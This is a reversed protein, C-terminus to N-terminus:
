DRRRVAVQYPGHYTSLYMPATSTSTSSFVRVEYVGTEPAQFNGMGPNESAWIYALPPQVEAGPRQITMALSGSIGMVGKAGWLTLRDGAQAQFTFVDVDGRHELSEGTVTQDIQIAAPVSEPAHQVASVRFRYPGEPDVSIGTHPEAHHGVRVRYTGTHPLVFRESTNEEMAGPWLVVHRLLPTDGEAPLLDLWSGVLGQINMVIETGAAASFEYVDLDQTPHISEGEVIQGLTITAPVQEPRTDIPFFEVRYAGQGGFARFIFEGARPATWRSWGARPTHGDLAAQLLVSGTTPDILHFNGRGAPAPLEAYIQFMEGAAVQITYEDVDADMDLVESVPQGPQLEAPVGEPARGLPFVMVRYPAARRADVPEPTSVTLTYRGTAPLRVPQTEGAFLWNRAIVIEPAGAVPGRLTAEVLPLGVDVSLYLKVEQGEVGDFVYEDVDYYPVLNGAAWQRVSFPGEGSEPATAIAHVAFRYGGTTGTSKVRVIMRGAPLTFRSGAEATGTSTATVVVASSASDLVTISITGQGTGTGALLVMGRGAAAVTVAFEDVDTASELSENVTQGLAVERAATEPPNTVSPGGSGGGPNDCAGLALAAAILATCTFRHM